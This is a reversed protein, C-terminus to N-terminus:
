ALLEWPKDPPSMAICCTRRRASFPFTLLLRSLSSILLLSSSGILSRPTLILLKAVYGKQGKRIAKAVEPVGRRICKAESAKRVLKLTKSYMKGAMLPDAIPSVYLNETSTNVEENDSMKIPSFNLRTVIKSKDNDPNTMSEM